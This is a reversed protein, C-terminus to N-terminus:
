LLGRANGVGTCKKVGQPSQMTEIPKLHFYINRFRRSLAIAHTALGSYINYCLRIRLLTGRGLGVSQLACAAHSDAKSKGELPQPSYIDAAAADM